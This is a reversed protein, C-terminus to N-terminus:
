DKQGSTRNANPAPDATTAEDVVHHLQKLVEQRKKEPMSDLQTALGALDVFSSAGKLGSILGSLSAPTEGQVTAGPSLPSGKPPSPVINIYGEGVLGATWVQFRDGERVEYNGPKLRITAVVESPGGQGSSHLSVAEVKGVPVGLYCVASSPKLHPTDAFVVHFEVGSRSCGSLFVALIALSALLLRSGSRHRM